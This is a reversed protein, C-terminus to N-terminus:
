DITQIQNTGQPKVRAITEFINDHPNLGMARFKRPANIPQDTGWTYKSKAQAIWEVHGDSFAWNGGFSGHNDQSQYGRQSEVADRRLTGWFGAGTAGPNGNDSANTEDGFLGIAAAEDKKLGAIYVYSVNYWIVDDITSITKPVRAQYPAAGEGGDSRDAPCQLVQFDAGSELYNSMIARSDAALAWRTGNWKYLKERDARKIAGADVGGSGPHQTIDGIQTLSFFGALGGYKGQTSFLTSTPIQQSTVGQGWPVIPYWQDYDEAYLSMFTALQRQNSACTVRWTSERAKGLAPLLLGILIAIVAVVVLLEILTFGRGTCAGDATRQSTKM